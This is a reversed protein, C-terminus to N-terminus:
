GCVVSGACLEVRPDSPTRTVMRVAYIKDDRECRWALATVYRRGRFIGFPAANLGRKGECWLAEHGRFVDQRTATYFRRLAKKFFGGVWGELGGQRLALSALSVRAVELDDRGDSFFFQLSGTRLASRELTWARAVRFQMGFVSWDDRGDESRTSLSDFVRRTLSKLEDDAFFVRLHVVRRTEPCVMLLSHANFDGRWTFAEHDVDGLNAVYRDRAVKAQGAQRGLKKRTQKLYDDVLAKAPEAKRKPTEWRLELRATTEDEVRLYGSAYGGELRGPCWDAPMDFGIGHWGLRTWEM